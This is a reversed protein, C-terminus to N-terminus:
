RGVLEFGAEEVQALGVTAFVNPGASRDVSRALRRLQNTKSGPILEWMTYGHRALIDDIEDTSSGQRELHAPEVEILLHPQAKALIDESGTLARVESGELDLKVFDIREGGFAKDLTTVDVPQRSSIRGVAVDPAFSNFGAADATFEIFMQRGVLDVLACTQVEVCEFANMRVNARLVQTIRSAPEFAIVRGTPGVRRAAVLTFTGVHAGGDVFTDGRELLRELLILEPARLGYRFLELGLATTLDTQMLVHHGVDVVPLRLHQSRRRVLSEAVRAATAVPRERWAQDIVKM